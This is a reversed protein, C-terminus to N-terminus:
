IANCEKKRINTVSEREVLAVPIIGSEATKGSIIRLLKDVAMKGMSEHDFTLTSLPPTALRAHVRDYFSIVAIDGPVDLGKLRLKALIDYATADNPAYIACPCDQIVSLSMELHKDFESFQWILNEPVEGGAKKMAENFGNLCIESRRNRENDFRVFFIKEYGLGKLHEIAIVTGKFYDPIVECLGDIETVCGYIVCPLLRSVDAITEFDITSSLIVSDYHEDLKDYNDDLVLELSRGVKALAETAGRFVQFHYAEEIDRSPNFLFATRRNNNTNNTTCHKSVFTGSGHRRVILKKSELREFVKQIVKISVDFHKSLMRVSMLRSGPPLANSMIESELKESITDVMSKKLHYDM